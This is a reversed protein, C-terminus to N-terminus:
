EDTEFTGIGNNYINEKIVEIMRLTDSADVMRPAIYIKFREDELIVPVDEGFSLNFRDMYIGTRRFFRMVSIIDSVIDHGLFTTIDRQEPLDLSELVDLDVDIHSGSDSITSFLIHNDIRGVMYYFDDHKKGYKKQKEIQTLRISSHIYDISDLKPEKFFHGFIEREKMLEINKEDLYDPKRDIIMYVNANDVFLAHDGALKCTLNKAYLLTMFNQFEDKNM